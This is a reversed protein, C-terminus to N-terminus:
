YTSNVQYYNECASSRHINNTACYTAVGKALEVERDLVMQCPLLPRFCNSSNFVSQMLANKSCVQVRKREVQGGDQHETADCGGSLLKWFGFDGCPHQLFVLSNYLTKVIKQLNVKVVIASPLPQPCFCVDPGSSRAVRSEAM